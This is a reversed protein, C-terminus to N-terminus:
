CRWRDSEGQGCPSGQGRDRGLFIVPHVRAVTRCWIGRVRTSYRTSSRSILDLVAIKYIESIACRPSSRPLGEGGCEPRDGRAAPLWGRQRPPRHPPAIASPGREGLVLQAESGAFSVRGPRVGLSRSGAPHSRVAPAVTLRMGHSPRRTAMTTQRSQLGPALWSRCATRSSGRRRSRWPRPAGPLRGRRPLSGVALACDRFGLHRDNPVTRRGRSTATPERVERCAVPAELALTRAEGSRGVEGTSGITPNARHNVASV